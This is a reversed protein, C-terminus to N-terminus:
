APAAADDLLTRLADLDSTELIDLFGIDKGTSEFLQTSLTVAKFSDGGNELFGIAPDAGAGLTENWLQLVQDPVVEESPIDSTM